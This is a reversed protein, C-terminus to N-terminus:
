WGMAEVLADMAAQARPNDVTATTVRDLDANNSLAHQMAMMLIDHNDGAIVCLANVMDGEKELRVATDAVAMLIAILQSQDSPARISEPNELAVRPDPLSGYYRVFAALEAAPGDSVYCRAIEFIETDQAGMALADSVFEWARPSPFRGHEDADTPLKSLYNSRFRIFGRVRIDVANEKAWKQWDDHDPMLPVTWCRGVLPSLLTGAGARDSRRNATLVVRVNKGLKTGGAMRELAVRFVAAQMSPGTQSIDDLVLVGPNDGIVDESLRRMWQEPYRLISADDDFPRPYGNLDEPLHSNLDIVECVGGRALEKALATKGIGPPGVLLITRDTPIRNILQTARGITMHTQLLDDMTESTM